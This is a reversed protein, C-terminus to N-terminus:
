AGEARYRKTLLDLGSSTTALEVTGKDTGLTILSGRPVVSWPAKIPQGIERIGSYTDVPGFLPGTIGSKAQFVLRGPEAKVYGIAWKSKYSTSEKERLACEFLGQGADFAKRRKRVPAVLQRLIVLSAIGSLVVIALAAWFGLIERLPSFAVIFIFIPPMIGINADYAKELWGRPSPNLNREHGAM